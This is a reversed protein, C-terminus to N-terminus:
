NLSFLYASRVLTPYLDLRSDAELLLTSPNRVQVLTEILKMQTASAEHWINSASSWQGRLRINGMYASWSRNHEFPLRLYTASTMSPCRFLRGPSIASSWKVTAPDTTGKLYGLRVLRSAADKPLVDFSMPIPYGRHDAAYATDAIGIQRLNV